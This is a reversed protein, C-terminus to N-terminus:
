YGCVKYHFPGLVVWACLMFAVFLIGACLFFKVLRPIAIDLASSLAQHPPLHIDPLASEGERSDSVNFQRFYSVYRLIVAAQLVVSVGLM